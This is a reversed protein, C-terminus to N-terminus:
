PQERAPEHSELHKILVEPKPEATFHLRKAMAASMQARGDSDILLVQNVRMAKAVDPWGRPGAVFLATAAADAVAASEHVVTVSRVGQAPYGTRPDLIHHYRRGEHEFYREYDGSTVVAEDDEMDIYGMVGPGRPARIGIRWPRGGKRGFVRVEGGANLIGNDMGMSRLREVALDAAYGPIFGGFDLYVDPNTSRMRIGALKLDDLSPHRGVLQAIRDAAPPEQRMAEDDHFGWLEVLKGIAPNFLGSSANSLLRTREIVEPFGPGLSFESGTPILTNIRKLSGPQWPHWAEHLFDLDAGVQVAARSALRPDAGYLTLEVLTGFALFRREFLEDTRCGILCFTFFAAL